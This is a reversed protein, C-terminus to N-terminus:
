ATSSACPADWLRTTSISTPTSRRRNPGRASSPTPTSPSSRYRAKALLAGSRMTYLILRCDNGVLERLVEVAGEADNGTHPYEHEVCTGDFDVAITLGKSAM